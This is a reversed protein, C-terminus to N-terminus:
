PNGPVQYITVGDASYVVPMFQRFRGLDSSAYTTIELSGVYLYKVSYNRLLSLVTRSDTSTYITNIDSGRRYFDPAYNVNNL